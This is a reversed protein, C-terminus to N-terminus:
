AVLRADKNLSFEANYDIVGQRIHVPIRAKITEKEISILKAHFKYAIIAKTDDKEYLFSGPLQPPLTFNFPLSYGGPPIAYDWKYIPYHFNCIRATVDQSRRKDGDREEWHTTEKGKFILYLTSPKMPSQIMIHIMGIAAEGNFLLANELEIHMGGSQNNKSESAGNILLLLHM